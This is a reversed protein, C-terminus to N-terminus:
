SNYILLAKSFDVLSGSKKMDIYQKLLDMSEMKLIGGYLKPLQYSPLEKNDPAWNKLAFSVAGDIPSELAYYIEGMFFAMAAGLCMMCPEMTVFLQMQTREIYSYQRMDASWLANMEAHRLFMNDNEGSSCASLILDDNRFIAAGVPLDGNQLSAKAVEIAVNMKDETNM